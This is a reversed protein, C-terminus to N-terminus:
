VVRRLNRLNQLNPNLSFVQLLGVLRGAEEKEIKGM